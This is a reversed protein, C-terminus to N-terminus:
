EPIPIQITTARFPDNPIATHNPRQNFEWGPVGGLLITQVRHCLYSERINSDARPLITLTYGLSIGWLTCALVMSKCLSVQRLLLVSKPDM